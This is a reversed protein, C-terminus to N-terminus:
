TGAEGAPPPLRVVEPTVTSGGAAHVRDDRMSVLAGLVLAAAAAVGVLAGPRLALGEASSPVDVIRFAVLALAVLAVLFTVAAWAVAVAPTRQTSEIAALALGTLAAGLLAVDIVAFAEWATLAPPCSAGVVQVCADAGGEYWPLFLSALLVVGAVGAIVEGIRPLKVNM